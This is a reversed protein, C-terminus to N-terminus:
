WSVSETLGPWTTDLGTAGRYVGVYATDPRPPFISLAQVAAGSLHAAATTGLAGRAVNLTTGASNATPAYM